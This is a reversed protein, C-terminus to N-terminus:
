FVKLGLMVRRRYRHSMKNESSRLAEHLENGDDEARQHDAHDIAPCREPFSKSDLRGAPQMENSLFLKRILLIMIVGAASKITIAKLAQRKPPVAPFPFIVVWDRATVANESIEALPTIRISHRL